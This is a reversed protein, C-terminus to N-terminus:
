NSLDEFKYLMWEGGRKKFHLINNFGNEVGSLCLIKEKGSGVKASNLFRFNSFRKKPFVPKFSNWQEKDITAKIVSFEDDPDSTVFAIQRSVHGLQFLSDTAFKRFFDIFIRDFLTRPQAQSRDVAVEVLQTTSSHDFANGSGVVDFPKVCSSRRMRVKHASTATLYVIHKVAIDIDAFSVSSDFGNFYHHVSHTGFTHFSTVVTALNTQM